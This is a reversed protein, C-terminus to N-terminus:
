TRPRHGAPQVLYRETPGAFYLVEYKRNILVAPWACVPRLLSHQTLEALKPPAPAPEAPQPM